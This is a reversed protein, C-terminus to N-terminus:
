APFFKIEPLDFTTTGMLTSYDIRVSDENNYCQLYIFSGSNYMVIYGHITGDFALIPMGTTRSDFDGVGSVHVTFGAPIAFRYSGIQHRIWNITLGTTNLLETTTPASTGSQAFRAIYSAYGLVSNRTANKLEGGQIVPLLDEGGVETIQPYSGIFINSM